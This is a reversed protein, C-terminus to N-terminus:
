NELSESLCFANLHHISSAQTLGRTPLSLSNSKKQLHGKSTGISTSNSSIKSVIQQIERPDVHSAKTWRCIIGQSVLVEIEAAIFLLIASPNWCGGQPCFHRRRSWNEKHYNQTTWSIPNHLTNVKGLSLAYKERVYINGESRKYWM